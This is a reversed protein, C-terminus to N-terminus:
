SPNAFLMAAVTRVSTDREARGSQMKNAWAEMRRASVRNLPMPMGTIEDGMRAASLAMVIAPDRYVTGRKAAAFCGKATDAFFSRLPIM